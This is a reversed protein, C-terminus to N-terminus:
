NIRYDGPFATCLGGFFAIAAIGTGYTAIKLVSTFGSRTNSGINKKDNIYAFPNLDYEPKEKVNYIIVGEEPTSYTVTYSYSKFNIVFSDGFEEASGVSTIVRGDKRLTGVVYENVQTRAADRSNEHKVEKVEWVVVGNNTDPLIVDARGKGGGEKILACEIETGPHTMKIHEQVARHIAGFESIVFLYRWLDSLLSFGDDDTGNAPNNLCYAFMNNGLVGQGTSVLGDANIFRGTEPDYYRSNLYYLGTERDYRYGRYLYPNRNILTTGASNGAENTATM